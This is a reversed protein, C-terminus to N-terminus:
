SRIDQRHQMYWAVTEQLGQDLAKKHTWGLSHLRDVNLLKKPTGDPKTADFVIKGTYGVTAAVLRALDAITIDVGTGVNVIDSGTYHNMLFIAADALDDVHLFERYVTGTGWVVVTSQNAEKAQVFRRILAPLVHSNQEHFYDNPGYLNTPMCAIFRTGYQKNYAQCLKIGAIKAIAYWQNSPELASSLLYEERIPQQCDRPYICSSGLFLLKKVGHKHAADIVNAEIMLNNYIFEAPYTSNAVIGGVKAAALFVFEPKETAFFQDVAAQNRLDLETSSKGIINTYGQAVLNRYIAAGALGNHGAVYIKATYPMQQEAAMSSVVSLAMLALIYLRM